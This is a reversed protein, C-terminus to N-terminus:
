FRNQTFGNEDEEHYGDARKGIVDLVLNIKAYAIIKARKM